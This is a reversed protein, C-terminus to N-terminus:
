KNPFTRLLRTSPLRACVPEYGYSPCNSICTGNSKAPTDGPGGCDVLDKTKADYWYPKCVRLVTGRYTASCTKVICSANPRAACTNDSCATMAERVCLASVGPIGCRSPLLVHWCM